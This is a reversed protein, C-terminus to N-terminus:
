KKFLESHTGFRELYVINQTNDIWILLTDSKVHCEWCGKYKGKLMHPKYIAPIPIDNQILGLIFELASLEENRGVYKKIDKKFQTSYRLEKM